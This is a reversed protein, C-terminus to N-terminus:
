GLTRVQTSREQFLRWRLRRRQTSISYRMSIRRQRRRSPKSDPWPSMAPRV